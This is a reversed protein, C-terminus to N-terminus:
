LSKYSYQSISGSSLLLHHLKAQQYDNETQLQIKQQPAFPITPTILSSIETSNEDTLLVTRFFPTESGNKLITSAASAQAFGDLIQVGVYTHRNLRQVWRIAGVQWQNTGPKKLLIVEGSKIQSPVIHSWRLCYGHDSID